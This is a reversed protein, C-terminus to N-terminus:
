EIFLLLAPQGPMQFVNKDAAPNIKSAHLCFHSFFYVFDITTLDAAVHHFNQMRAHTLHEAAIFGHGQYFGPHNVGGLFLMHRHNFLHVTTILNRNAANGMRHLFLM